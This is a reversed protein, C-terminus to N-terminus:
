TVILRWEALVAATSSGIGALMSLFDHEIGSLPQYATKKCGLSGCGAFFCFRGFFSVLGTRFRVKTYVFTRYSSGENEDIRYSPGENEYWRVAGFVITYSFNAVSSLVLGPSICHVGEINMLKM